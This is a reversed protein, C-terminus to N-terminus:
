PLQGSTERNNAETIIREYLAEYSDLMMHLTRAGANHLGDARLEASDSLVAEIRKAASAPDGADIFIAAGGAVENMPPRDAIAVPCGCAQAELIPWGFGEELSPFLTALAGSYLAQLEENRAGEIPVIADQVERQQAMARLRATMPGGAMVLRSAAYPPLRRLEAFIGIVGARNKYWLDGGIHFFYTDGPSLGLRRLVPEREVGSMPRYAWHLANPIVHLRTEPIELYSRLDDRTKNSVCVINGAQRLGRAILKQFIRGTPGVPNEPFHGMASRIALMDHCTVLHPYTAISSVYMANSHDCIHVIDAEAAARRLRKRFLLFKDVYGLWKSLMSGAPARGGFVVPPQLLLVAHGRARLGHELMAAYHRMSNQRDPLYNGVLLIKM